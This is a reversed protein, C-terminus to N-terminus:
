KNYKRFLREAKVKLLKECVAKHMASPDKTCRYYKSVLAEDIGAAYAFKGQTEYFEIIKKKFLIRRAM